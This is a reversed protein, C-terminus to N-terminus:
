LEIDSEGHLLQCKAALRDISAREAFPIESLVLFALHPVINIVSNCISLLLAFPAIDTYVPSKLRWLFDSLFGRAM